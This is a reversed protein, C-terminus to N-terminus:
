YVVEASKVETETTEPKPSLLTTLGIVAFSVTVSNMLNRIRREFEKPNKEYLERTPLQETLFATFIPITIATAVKGVTEISVM